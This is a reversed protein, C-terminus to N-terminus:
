KRRNHRARRRRREHARLGARSSGVSHSRPRHRALHLASGALFLVATLLLRARLIRSVALEVRADTWTVGRRGDSRSERELEKSRISRLRRTRVRERM